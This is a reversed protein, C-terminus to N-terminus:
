LYLSQVTLDTEKFREALACHLESKPCPPMGGWEVAIVYSVTGFHPCFGFDSVHGIWRPDEEVLLFTTKILIDIYFVLYLADNFLLM